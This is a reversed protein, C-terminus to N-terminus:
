VFHLGQRQRSVVSIVCEGANLQCGTFEKYIGESSLATKNKIKPPQFCAPFSPLSPYMPLLAKNVFGQKESSTM